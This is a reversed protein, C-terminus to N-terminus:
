PTWKARPIPSLVMFSLGGCAAPRSSTGMVPACRTGIFEVLPSTNAGAGSSQVPWASSSRARPCSGPLLSPCCFPRYCAPPWRARNLLQHYAAFNGVEARGTVRLSATVTRKRSFPDCGDRSGFSPGLEARYVRRSIAFAM